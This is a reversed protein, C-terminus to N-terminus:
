TQMLMLAVLLPLLQSFQNHTRLTLLNRLRLMAVRPIFVRNTTRPCREIMHVLNPIPHEDFVAVRAVVYQSAGDPLIHYGRHHEDYGM